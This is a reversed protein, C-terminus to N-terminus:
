PSELANVKLLIALLEKSPVRGIIKHVNQDTIQEQWTCKAACRKRLGTQVPKNRHYRLLVCDDALPNALTGTIAVCVFPKGARIEDTASIIVMPRQKPNRGQPDLVDALVIMGQELPM